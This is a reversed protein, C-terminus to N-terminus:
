TLGYGVKASWEWEWDGEEEQPKAAHPTHEELGAPISKVAEVYIHVWLFFYWWIQTKFFMLIIM